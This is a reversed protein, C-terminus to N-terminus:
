LVPKDRANRIPQPLCQRPINLCCSSSSDQLSESLLFLFVLIDEILLSLMVRAIKLSSRIQTYRKNFLCSMTANEQKNKGCNEIVQLFRLFPVPGRVKKLLM